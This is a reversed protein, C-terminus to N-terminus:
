TWSEYLIKLPSPFLVQSCAIIQYIEILHERVNLYSVENWWSVLQM